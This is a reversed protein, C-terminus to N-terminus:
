LDLAAVRGRRGGRVARRDQRGLADGGRDFLYLQNGGELQHVLARETAHISWRDGRYAATLSGGLWLDGGNIWEAAVSTGLVLRVRSAPPLVSVRVQLDGGMIPIPFLPSTLRLEIRDNPAYAYEHEFATLDQTHEIHGPAVLEGTPTLPTTRTLVPIDALAPAPALVLFAIVVHRQM